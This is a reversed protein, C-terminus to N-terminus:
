PSVGAARLLDALVIRRAGEAGIGLLDAGWEAYGRFGLALDRLATDADLPTDLTIREGESLAETGGIRQSGLLRWRRGRRRWLTAEMAPVDDRVAEVVCSLRGGDLRVSQLALYRGVPIPESLDGELRTANWPREALADVYRAAAEADGENLHYRALARTLGNHWCRLGDAARWSLSLLRYSVVTRDSTRLTISPPGERNVILPIRLQKFRESVDNWPIDIDENAAGRIEVRLDGAPHPPSATLEVSLEYSGKPLWVPVPLPTRCAPPTDAAPEEAGPRLVIAATDLVPGLHVRAFEDYYFGNVGGVRLERPAASLATGLRELLGTAAPLLRAAQEWRQARVLLEFAMAPDVPHESHEILDAVRDEYGLQWAIRLAQNLSFAVRAYCPVRVIHRLPPTSLTLMEFRGFRPRYAPRVLPVVAMDYPELSVRRRRGFGRIRIDTGRERTHLVLYAPEPQGEPGGIAIRRPYRNLELMTASGLLSGRPFFALHGARSLLAPQPLPAGFRTHERPRHLGYLQITPSCFTAKVNEPGLPTWAALLESRRLFDEFRAQFAPFRRGTRQDFVGRGTSDANRIVYDCGEGLAYEMGNFEMKFVNVDRAFTRQHAPNAYIEVGACRDPPVHTRLWSRAQLRMDRLGFISAVAAGRQAAGFLACAAICLVATRGAILAKGSGVRWLAALPLGALLCLVPLLNLFEQSRVWPAQFIFYFLYLLPFLLSVPWYRRYPRTFLLPVGAAALALWVAGLSAGYQALKHVHAAWLTAAATGAQGMIGATEGYVTARGERIGQLFWAPKLIAPDAWAFGPLFCLLGLASWAAVRKWAKRVGPPGPVGTLAVALVVPFLVALMYKTGTAFGCAIAAFVFAAAGRRRVARTLLWLSLSLMLVMAIDTEAYHSHEVHYQAFCMLAAGFLGASDRDTVQRCLAYVLLVTLAGLWVNVHRAFLADNLDTDDFTLHEVQGLHYRLRHASRTLVMAAKRIPRCITFFGGPYVVHLSSHSDRYRIWRGIKVADPHAGRSWNIGQYRILLSVLFVLVPM